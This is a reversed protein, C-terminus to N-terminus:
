KKLAVHDYSIVRTLRWKGDKKEWVHFFKAEGVANKPDVAAQHFRHVGSEIAGFGHLPYVEMSVLERRVKGCINKKVADIVSKRDRTVGGQDHYFEVDEAFFSAFAELDCRNYAAFVKADLDAITRHLDSSAPEAPAAICAGTFLMVAIFRM